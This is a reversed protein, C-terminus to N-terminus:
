MARRSPSTLYDHISEQNGFHRLCAPLIKCCAAQWQRIFSIAAAWLHIGWADHIRARHGVRPNEQAASRPDAQLVPLYDGPPLSEEFPNSGAAGSHSPSFGPSDRTRSFAKFSAISTQTQDARSRLQQLTMCRIDSLSRRRATSIGASLKVCNGSKPTDQLPLHM